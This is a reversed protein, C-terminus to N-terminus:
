VKSVIEISNLPYDYTENEELLYVKVFPFLNQQRTTYQKKFVVVGIKTDNVKVLDGINYDSLSKNKMQCSVMRLQIGSWQEM